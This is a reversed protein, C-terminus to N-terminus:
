GSVDYGAVKTAAERTGAEDLGGIQIEFRVEAGSGAEYGHVKLLGTETLHFVVKFPAGAPRPPLDRLMGEGIHTNHEQEESAISGAQEWVELLVTSQNDDVTYFTEPETDAPLPTNATLLHSIYRRAKARDTKWLPDDTDVVKIGFARPVVTAVRKRAIAEVQEAPMGLQDAVERVQGDMPAGPEGDSLSVKIKRMLAFLAAGKAVALHPDQLRGDLGCRERLARAIAPMITMGGVLLVDDFHDVGKDRATAITRETIEITRDLLESTLEELQERTLELQAASGGFRLTLKRAMTASLAKKLQEASTALDQMFEEDGSPDTDPYQSTFGRLLFDIIKQDWDAGGLQHNGDTCVVAIDDGDIRIVTTDFTGGGLDYVFLHRVGPTEGLSQYALAAAVPEALVDLVNLGAIQGAKRTAERELVGFYAPVTIVVDRVEEGTQEQAARALERLILASVSEPTHGQGHFTYHADQGMQRKVLEVVLQPALVASDKAQRGVVVNGASEFFVVSPTTDEGVESKLIVPRGTEDVSAICSNTTGLDIGYTAM